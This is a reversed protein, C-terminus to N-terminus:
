RLPDLEHNLVVQQLVGTVVDGLEEVLALAEVLRGDPVVQSLPRAKEISDCWCGDMWTSGVLTLNSSCLKWKASRSVGTREWVPNIAGVNLGEEGSTVGQELACM